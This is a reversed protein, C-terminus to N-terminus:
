AGSSGKKLSAIRRKKRHESRKLKMAMLHMFQEQLKAERRLMDIQNTLSAAKNEEGDELQDREHAKGIEKKSLVALNEEEGVMRNKRRADSKIAGNVRVRVLDEERRQWDAYRQIEREKEATVRSVIGLPPLEESCIISAVSMMM